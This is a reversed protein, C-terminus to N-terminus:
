KSGGKRRGRKPKGPVSAPTSANSPHDPEEVLEKIKKNLLAKAHEKATRRRL